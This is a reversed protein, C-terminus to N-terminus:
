EQMMEPILSGITTIGVTVSPYVGYSGAIQFLFELNADEYLLPFTIIYQDAYFRANIHWTDESDWYEKEIVKIEADYYSDYFPMYEMVRDTWVYLIEYWATEYTYGDYLNQSQGETGTVKVYYITDMESDVLLRVRVETEEVYLDLYWMMLVVGERNEKEYVIYKKCNQIKEPVMEEWVDHLRYWTMEDLRTIWEQQFIQGLQQMLQPDKKVDYGISTITAVSLDMSALNNMRVSTQTEYPLNRQEDLLSSRTEMETNSMQYRDQMSFIFQPLILAAVVLLVMGLGYIGYIKKM